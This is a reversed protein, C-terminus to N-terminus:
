VWIDDPKSLRVIGKTRLEDLKQVIARQAEEVQERPFHATTKLDEVVIMRKRETMNSLLVDFVKDDAYKLATVLTYHDSEKILIQAGRNDLYSIDSFSILLSGIRNLVQPDKAIMKSLLTRRRSEPMSNLIKATAAPGDVFEDQSDNM